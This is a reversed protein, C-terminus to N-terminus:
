VSPLLQQLALYRRSAAGKLGNLVEIDAEDAVSAGIDKWVCSEGDKRSRYYEFLVLIRKQWLGIMAAAGKEGYMEYTCSHSVHLGVKKAFLFLPTGSKVDTRMGYIPRAARKQQWAGGIVATKFHEHRTDEATLLTARAAELDKFSKEASEENHVGEIVEDVKETSGSVGKSSGSTSTSTKKTTRKGWSGRQLLEARQGGRTKGGVAADQRAIIDLFEHLSLMNGASVVCFSGCVRANDVVKIDRTDKGHLIDATSYLGNQYTWVFAPEWVFKMVDKQAEMDVDEHLELPQVVLQVPQQIAVIFRFWHCNGTMVGQISGGQACDGSLASCGVPIFAIEVLHRMDTSAVPKACLSSAQRMNRITIDSFADSTAFTDFRQAEDESFQAGQLTMSPLDVASLNEEVLAQELHRHAVEREERLAALRDSVMAAADRNLTTSQVSRM